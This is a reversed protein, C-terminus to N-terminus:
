PKKRAALWRDLETIEKKQAAIIGKAMKLMEPDKGNKIQAQSMDVAMQHHMRMNAAFDYDVDGTMSMGEMHKMGGMKSHHGSPMSKADHEHPSEDANAWMPTVATVAAAIAMACALLRSRHSRALRSQQSM